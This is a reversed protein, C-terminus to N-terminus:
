ESMPQMWWGSKGHYRIDRGAFALYLLRAYPRFTTLKSYCCPRHLYEPRAGAMFVTQLAMLSYGVSLTQHLRKYTQAVGGCVDACAKLYRSNPRLKSVLPYLLFRHCKYYFVMQRLILSTRLILASTSFSVSVYYDYGDFAISERDTQTKADM